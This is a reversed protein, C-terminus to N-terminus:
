TRAPRVNRRCRRRRRRAQASSKRHQGDDLTEHHIDTVFGLRLTTDSHDLILCDSKGEATRLGRGIIQTYLIESRTPRALIICRVDWDVGTTLCYVNCVVKIQGERLRQGIREREDAPTNADVYGTPVGAAEFEDALRRAHARDVAFCLTPRDEGLRLWTSVTDAVLVPQSMAESLQGEHYDGAVIKVASLDPHAPAYVRFPSLFGKDILEATTAAVILDDYHKGLGKTWPTASLGVFPVRQWEPM